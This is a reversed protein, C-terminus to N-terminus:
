RVMLEARKAKLEQLQQHAARLRDQAEAERQKVAATEARLKEPHAAMM